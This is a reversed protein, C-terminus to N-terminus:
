GPLPVNVGDQAMKKTYIPTFVRNSGVLGDGVGGVGLYVQFGTNLGIQPHQSVHYYCM